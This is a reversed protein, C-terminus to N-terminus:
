ANHSGFYQAFLHILAVSDLGHLDEYDSKLIDLLGSKRFMAYVESGTKAIHAAYNEICFVQFAVLKM